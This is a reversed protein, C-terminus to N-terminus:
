LAAADPFERPKEMLAQSLSLSHEVINGTQTTEVPSAESSRIQRAGCPQHLRHGQQSLSQTTHLNPTLQARGPPNEESSFMPFVSQSFKMRSQLSTPACTLTSADQARRFQSQQARTDMHNVPKFNIRVAVSGTVNSNFLRPWSHIYRSRSNIYQLWSNDYQFWM